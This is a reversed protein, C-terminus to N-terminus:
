VNSIVLVPTDISRKSMWVLSVMYVIVIVIPVAILRHTPFVSWATVVPAGCFPM